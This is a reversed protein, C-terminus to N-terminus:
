SLGGHAPLDPTGYAFALRLTGTVPSFLQRLAHLWYARRRNRIRYQATENGQKAM